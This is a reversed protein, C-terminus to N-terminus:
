ATFLSDPEDKAAAEAGKPFRGHYNRPIHGWGFEIFVLDARSAKINANQPIQLSIPWRFLM